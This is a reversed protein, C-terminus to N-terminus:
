AGGMLELAETTRKLSLFGEEARHWDGIKWGVERAMEVVLLGLSMRLERIQVGLKLAEPAPKAPWTTRATM